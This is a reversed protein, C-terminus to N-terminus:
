ACSKQLTTLAQSSRPDESTPARTLRGGRRPRFPGAGQAALYHQLGALQNRFPTDHTTLHGVMSAQNAQTGRTVLNTLMSIGVSGGLNRLLSTLGTADGMQQRPVTAVSFITIGVFIAAVAFGSLIIPWLLNSPAISLNIAGLWYMSVALLVATQAIFARGDLKSLIRGALLTGAIAGLGRPSIVLGAQLATYNMLNQLFQPLITTTGNM